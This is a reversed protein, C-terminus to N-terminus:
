VIPSVDIIHFQTHGKGIERLYIVRLNSYSTHPRKEPYPLGNQGDVPTHVEMLALTLVRSHARDLVPDDGISQVERMGDVDVQDVELHDSLIVQLQQHRILALETSIARNVLQIEQKSSYSVCQLRSSTTISLQIGLSTLNEFIRDECSEHVIM